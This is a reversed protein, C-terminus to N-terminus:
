AASSMGTCREFTRSFVAESEYGVNAAVSAIMAGGAALIGAAIQM